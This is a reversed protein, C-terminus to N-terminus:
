TKMIKPTIGGDTKTFQSGMKLFVADNNEKMVHVPVIVTAPGCMITTQAVTRM